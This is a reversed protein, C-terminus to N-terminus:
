TAVFIYLNIVSDQIYKINNVIKIIDKTLLVLHIETGMDFPYAYLPDHALVIFFTCQFLLQKLLFYMLIVTESLIETSSVIACM